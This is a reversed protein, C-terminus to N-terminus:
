LALAVQREGGDQGQGEAWFCSGRYSGERGGRCAQVPPLLPRPLLLHWLHCCLLLLITSLNGCVGALDSPIRDRKPFSIIPRQLSLHLRTLSEIIGSLDFLSLKSGLIEQELAKKASCM